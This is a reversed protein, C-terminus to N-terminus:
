LEAFQLWQLQWLGFLFQLNARNSLYSKLQQCDITRHNAVIKILDTSVGDIKWSVGNIYLEFKSDNGDSQYAMKVMPDRFLTEKSALQALFDAENVNELVDPLLEEAGYDLHTAFRGFWNKFLKDDAMESLILQKAQQWAAEPLEATHQIMRWDPDKYLTKFADQENVYDCFSNLMERSQYSRYGFSYTMCDDSLSVGHHGVHPPLYLIDGPELIYEEEVIFIKMVRLEVDTLYNQENCDQTTLMWKRQGLAQLLFVDYNDYHPGVNGHLPAYSIMVDDVRWQPIFDFYDLLNQVEPLLRDVGQVLLTWHTEPMSAYDEETFPGRRLQWAPSKAPQELVIRSEVEPELSLGALEEPSLCNVFDPMAQKLLIPKKQWYDALFDARSINTFNLTPITYKM